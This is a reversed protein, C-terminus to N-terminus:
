SKETAGVLVDTAEPHRQFWAIAYPCTPRIKFGETRALAVTGEMLRGATGKGRLAMASEVHPITVINGDRRYSAVALHGSEELEFRHSSENNIVTSM